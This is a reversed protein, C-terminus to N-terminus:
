RPILGENQFRETLTEADSGGGAPATKSPPVVADTGDGTSSSGDPDTTTGPSEAGAADADAGSNGLAERPIYGENVLRELAADKSEGPRTGAVSGGGGDDAVVFLTAAVAVVAVLAIMLGVWGRREPGPELPAAGTTRRTQREKTLLTAM